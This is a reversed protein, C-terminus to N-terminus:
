RSSPPAQQVIGPERMLAEIADIETPAFASFNDFGDATVVGVDEIRIYLREEPVWMMPDVSFVTGPVLPGQRYSGVDHM